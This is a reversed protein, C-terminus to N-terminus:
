PENATIIINDVNVVAAVLNHGENTLRVRLNPAQTDAAEAMHYGSLDFEQDDFIARVLSHDSLDVVLKLHSFYYGTRLDPLPDILTVMGAERTRVQLVDADEDVLLYSFNDTAGDYHYIDHYVKSVNSSFRVSAAFGVRPATPIAMRREIWAQAGDSTGSQLKCSFPPTEWIASSLAVASGVGTTSPGVDGVGDDFGYLWVVAGRRDYTVPSGLRVALEAMDDLPYFQENVYKGGWDPTDHGVIFGGVILLAVVLARWFLTDHGM